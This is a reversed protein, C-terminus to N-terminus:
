YGFNCYRQNYNHYCSDTKVPIFSLDKILPLIDYNWNKFFQNGHFCMKPKAVLNLITREM